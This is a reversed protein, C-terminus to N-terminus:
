LFLLFSVQRIIEPHAEPKFLEDIVQLFFYIVYFLIFYFLIFYFLIFYFLIFYFLKLVFLFFYLLIFYDRGDGLLYFFVEHELLWDLLLKPDLPKKKEGGEAGGGGVGLGMGGVGAIKSLFGGGMGAAM